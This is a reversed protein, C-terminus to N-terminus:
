NGSTDGKIDKELTNKHERVYIQSIEFLQLKSRHTMVNILTTDDTGLGKMSKHLTKADALPDNQPYAFNPMFTINVNTVSTQVAVGPQQPFPQGPFPQQPYPQGPYPQQPYPQGPYPQGTPYM